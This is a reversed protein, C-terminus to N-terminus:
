VGRKRAVAAAVFLGYAESEARGFGQQMLASALDFAFGDRALHRLAYIAYTTRERDLGILESIGEATLDPGAIIQALIVLQDGSAGLRLAALLAFFAQRSIGPPHM